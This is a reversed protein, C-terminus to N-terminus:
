KIVILIIIISSILILSIITFLIFTRERFYSKSVISKLLILFSILTIFMLFFTLIKDPFPIESNAATAGQYLLAIIASFIGLLEINRKTQDKLVESLEKEKEKIKSQLHYYNEFSKFETESNVLFSKVEDGFDYYKDYNLPM